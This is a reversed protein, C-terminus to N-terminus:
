YSTVTVTGATTGKTGDIFIGQTIPVSIPITTPLTLGRIKVIPIPNFSSKNAETLTLASSFGDYIDLEWATGASDIVLSALTGPNSTVQTTAAGGTVNSYTLISKAPQIELAM